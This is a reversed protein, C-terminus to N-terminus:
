QLSVQGSAVAANATEEIQIARVSNGRRHEEAALDMAEAYQAYTYVPAPAQSAPQTQSPTPMSTTVPEARAVNARSVAATTAGGSRQRDLEAKRANRFLMTYHVVGDIDGKRYAEVVHPARPGRLMADNEELWARWTPSNNIKDWDPVRALVARRVKDEWLAENTGNAKAELEKVRNHLPAIIKDVVREVTATAVELTANALDQDGFADLTEGDVTIEDLIGETSLEAPVDQPAADQPNAAPAADQAPEADKARKDLIKNVADEFAAADQAPAEQGAEQAPDAGEPAALDLEDAHPVANGQEDVLGPAADQAPADQAPADQAQMEPLPPILPNDSQPAPAAPHTQAPADDAPAMDPLEPVDAAGAAQGTEQSPQAAIEGSQGREQMYEAYVQPSNEKVEALEAESLEIHNGIPQAM